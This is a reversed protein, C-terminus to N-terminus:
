REVFTISHRQLMDVVATYVTMVAQHADLLEWVHDTDGHEILIDELEELSIDTGDFIIRNEFVEILPFFIDASDDDNIRDENIVILTEDPEDATEPVEPLQDYVAPIAGDGGIGFGFLLAIGLYIAIGVAFIASIILLKKLM